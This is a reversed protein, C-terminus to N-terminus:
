SKEASRPLSLLVLWAFQKRFLQADYGLSGDSGLM